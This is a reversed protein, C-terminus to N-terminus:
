PAGAPAAGRWVAVIEALIALAVEAPREAGIDLGIPAHVGAIRAEDVGAERLAEFRVRRTRGGGLLGVYGADSRLATDLAAVDLRADHAVVAVATSRDPVRASLAEDPWRGDVEWGDDLTGAYAARPEIVAVAIGAARALRALAAGIPTAGVVVLRRSPLFVEVLVAGPAADGAASAAGGAVTADAEVVQVGGTDLLRRGAEVAAEPAPRATESALVDGDPALLWHASPRSSSMETLLFCTSRADINELLVPWVPEDPERAELFVAIRGGCALGVGHATEDSVDYTVVSPPDGALVGALREALDAEVCGASVNGAIEGTQSRAFRAGPKRPASRWTETLVAVGYREGDARWTEVQPRIEEISM